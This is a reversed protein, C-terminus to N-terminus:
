EKNYFSWKQGHTEEPKSANWLECLKVPVSIRTQGSTLM